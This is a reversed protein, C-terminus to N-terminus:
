KAIEILLKADDLRRDLWEIQDETSVKDSVWSRVKSSEFITVQALVFGNDDPAELNANDRMLRAINELIPAALRLDAAKDGTTNEWMQLKATWEGPSEQQFDVSFFFPPHMKTQTNKVARFDSIKIINGGADSM